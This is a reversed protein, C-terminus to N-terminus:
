SELNKFKGLNLDYYKPNHCWITRDTTVLTVLFGTVKTKLASNCRIKDLGVFVCSSHLHLQAQATLKVGWGKKGRMLQVPTKAM